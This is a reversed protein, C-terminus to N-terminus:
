PVCVRISARATCQLGGHMHHAECSRKQKSHALPYALSFFCWCSVPFFRDPRHERKWAWSRLFHSTSGGRSGNTSKPLAVAVTAASRREEAMEAHHGSGRMVVNGKANAQMRRQADSCSQDGTLCSPSLLAVRRPVLALEYHLASQCQFGLVVFVTFHVLPGLDSDHRRNQLSLCSLICAM